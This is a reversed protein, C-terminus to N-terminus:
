SGMRKQLKSKMHTTQKWSYHSNPVTFVWSRESERRLVPITNKAPNITIGNYLHHLCVVVKLISKCSSTSPFQTSSCRRMERNRKKSSSNCIQSINFNPVATWSQTRSKDRNCGKDWISSALFNFYANMYLAYGWGKGETVLCIDWMQWKLSSFM